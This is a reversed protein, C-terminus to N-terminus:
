QRVQYPVEKTAVLVGDVYLRFTTTRDFGGAHPVQLYAGFATGTTLEFHGDAPITGSASATGAPSDPPPLFRVARLEPPFVRAFPVVNGPMPLCATATTCTLFELIKFDTGSFDYNRTAMSPVTSTLSWVRAAPDIRLISNSTESTAVVSFPKANPQLDFSVTFTAAILIASYSVVAGTSPSFGTLAVNAGSPPYLGDITGTVNRVNGGSAIPATTVNSTWGKQRISVTGSVPGNPVANVQYIGPFGPALGAFLLNARTDGIYVEPPDVVRNFPEAANGGAASNPAPTTAGLGAAYFIVPADGLATVPRFGGDFVLANGTGAQNQTFIAPANQSLAINFAPSSGSGNKVVVPVSNLSPAPVAVEFPVIFNIQGTSVFLLPAEVGGVTVSVGALQKPLPVNAAVASSPALGTGFLAAWTGPALNGSYSAGNLVAQVVQAHGGVALLLASVITNVIM